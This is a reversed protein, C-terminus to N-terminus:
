TSESELRRQREIHLVYLTSAIACLISFIMVSLLYAPGDDFSVYYGSGAAFIAGGGVQLTAGLGSAAGAIKPRVNVIGANANPLTIGNGLGVFFVLGFFTFASNAFGATLVLATVLGFFVALNGIMMMRNLGFNVSLRGALFNGLLYGVAIFIFYFGFATPRLGYYQIALLPGGGLFAFFAGSSFACTSAYGLFRKSRFLEPFSRLQDFLSGGKYRNTEELDIWIVVIAICTYAFILWFSYQWGYTDELIGGITPAIMPALTMGMTVYGIMSAANAGHVLDRVIARSLVMGAAASSQLVRGLLFMEISNAFICVLTAALMIILLMLLVPRRGYKDSLPGIILQMVATAALFLSVSLQATATTTDFYTTISPLSPLYINMALPSIAAAMALTAIHPHNKNRATM